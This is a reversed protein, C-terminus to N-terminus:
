KVHENNYDFFYEQKAAMMNETDDGRDHRLTIFEFNPQEPNFKGYYYVVGDYTLTKNFFTYIIKDHEASFNMFRFDADELLGGDLLGNSKRKVKFGEAIAKAKFLQELVDQKVIEKPSLKEARLQPFLLLFLRSMLPPMLVVLPVLHLFGKKDFQILYVLYPLIFTLLILTTFVLAETQMEGKKFYTYLLFQM